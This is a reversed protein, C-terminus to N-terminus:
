IGQRKPLEYVRVHDSKSGPGASKAKKEQGILEGETFHTRFRSENQGKGGTEVVYRKHALQM